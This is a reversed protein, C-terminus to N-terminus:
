CLMVRRLVVHMSHSLILFGLHLAFTLLSYHVIDAAIVVQLGTASIFVVRTRLLGKWCCGALFACGVGVCYVGVSRLKLGIVM